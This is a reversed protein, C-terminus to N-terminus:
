NSGEVLLYFKINFYLKNALALENIVIKRKFARYSKKWRVFFGFLVMKLYFLKDAMKGEGKNYCHNVTSFCCRECRSHPTHPFLSNSFLKKRGFQHKFEKVYHGKQTENNIMVDAEKCVNHPKLLVEWILQQARM